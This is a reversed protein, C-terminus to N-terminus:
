DMIGFVLVISSVDSRVVCNADHIPMYTAILRVHLQKRSITALNPQAMQEHEYSLYKKRTSPKRLRVCFPAKAFFSSSM